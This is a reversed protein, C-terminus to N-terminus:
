VGVCPTFSSSCTISLGFLIGASAPFAPRTRYDGHRSPPFGEPHLPKPTWTRRLGCLSTWGGTKTQVFNLSADTTGLRLMPRQRRANNRLPRKIKADIEHRLRRSLRYTPKSMNVVSNGSVGGRHSQRGRPHSLFSVHSAKIEITKAGIRKAYFRELEPNLARDQSSVIYWSPITKWAASSVSAGFVAGYMPKQTARFRFMTRQDVVWYRTWRDVKTQLWKRLKM